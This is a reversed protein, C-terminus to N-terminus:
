VNPLWRNPRLTTRERYVSRHNLTRPNDVFAPSKRLGPCRRREAAEEFLYNNDYTGGHQILVAADVGAQDMEFELTEIPQFWNQGAHCHTDIVM